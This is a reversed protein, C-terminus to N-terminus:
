PSPVALPQPPALLTLDDPRNVNFFNHEPDGYTRVSDASLRGVRVDDFFAIVRLKGADLCREIAPLCAPSYYACLPEFGRPSGSEPVAVDFGQEGLRRLALLLARPVFPM